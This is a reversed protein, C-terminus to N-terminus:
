KAHKKYYWRRVASDVFLLVGVLLFIYIYFGWGTSLQFAEQFPQIIQKLSIDAYLVFSLVALISMFATVMAMMIYNLRTARKRKRADEVYVQQMMRYTFNSPLDTTQRRQLAQKLVNDKTVKSEEM